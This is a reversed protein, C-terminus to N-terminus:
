DCAPLLNEDILGLKKAIYLIQFAYRKEEGVPEKRELHGLYIPFVQDILTKYRASHTQPQVVLDYLITFNRHKLEEGAEM